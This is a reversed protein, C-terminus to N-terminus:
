QYAPLFFQYLLVNEIESSLVDSYGNQIQIHLQTLNKEKKMVQGIKCMSVHTTGRHFATSM